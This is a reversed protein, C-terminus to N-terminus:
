DTSSTAHQTGVAMREGRVPAAEAFRLAARTGGSPASSLSITADMRACLDRAVALGIGSGSPAGADVPRLRVFQGFVRERDRLPIGPGEDDVTVTATDGVANVSVRVSQGDPGYKVANDFLNFLVQRLADPDARVFTTAGSELVVSLSSGRSSALPGFDAAAERVLGALDVPRVSLPAPEEGSETFRLANAVLRSLRRAERLVVRAYADRQDTPVAGPRLLTEAHVTVLALPTNFDHSVSALFDTRQRALAAARRQQVAALVLVIATLAFLLIPVVTQSRPVVDALLGAAPAAITVEAVLSDALALTTTGTHDEDDPAASFGSRFVAEGRATRVVASLGVDSATSRNLLTPLLTQRSVARALVQELWGAPAVIGYVSLESASTWRGMAAAVRTRGSSDKLISIIAGDTNGAKLARAAADAASRLGEVPVDSPGGRGIAMAGVRGAAIFRVSGVLPPACGSCHIDAHVTHDMAAPPSAAVASWLAMRVSHDIESSARRAFEWAAVSALQTLGRATADRRARDARYAEATLMAAGALAGLLGLTAARSAVRHGGTGLASWWRIRNRQSSM